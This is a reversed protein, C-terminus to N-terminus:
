VVYCGPGKATADMSFEVIAAEGSSRQTVHVELNGTKCDAPPQTGMMIMLGGNSEVWHREEIPADSSSILLDRNNTAEYLKTKWDANLGALGFSYADRKGHGGVMFMAMNTRGPYIRLAQARHREVAKRGIFVNINGAWYPQGRGTLDWLDSALASRRTPAKRSAVKQRWRVLNMWGSGRTNATPPNDESEHPANVATLLQKPPVRDFDGLPTPRPRAVEISM